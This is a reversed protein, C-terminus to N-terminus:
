SLYRVAKQLLKPDDQLFGIGKNCSHCLLGRVKGTKHCHDVVLVAVEFKVQCIACLNNQSEKLKDYEETSIGYAAKRQMAAVKEKNDLYWKKKTALVKDKNKHRWERMYEARQRKNTKM